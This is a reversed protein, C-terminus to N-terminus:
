QNQLNFSMAYQTTGKACSENAPQTTRDALTKLIDCLDDYIGTHINYYCLKCFCWQSIKDLREMVQLDNTGPLDGGPLQHCVCAKTISLNLQVMDLQKIITTTTPQNLM